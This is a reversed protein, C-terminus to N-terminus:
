TDFENPGSSEQICWYIMVAWGLLPITGILQWWGSRGIDHLRRAAVAVSPLITFLSFLSGMTQHVMQGATSFIIVFLTWWWFESRTARGNFEAYKKLCTQIAENFTM